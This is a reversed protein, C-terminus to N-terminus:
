WTDNSWAIRRWINPVIQLQSDQSSNWPESTNALFFKYTTGTSLEFSTVIETSASAGNVTINTVSLNGNLLAPDEIDAQIYHTGDNVETFNTYSVVVSGVYNMTCYYFYESGFAIDDALDGSSGVSFNPINVVRGGAWATYQETEDPFIIFGSTSLSFTSTGAILQNKTADIYQFNQNIKGFALRLTDGNASNPATGTNITQM